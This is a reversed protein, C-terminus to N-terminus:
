LIDPIHKWREMLVLRSRIDRAATLEKILTDIQEGTLTATCTFSDTVATCDNYLSLEFRNDPLWQLAIRDEASQSDMRPIRMEFRPYM